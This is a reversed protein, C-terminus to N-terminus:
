IKIFLKRLLSGESRFSPDKLGRRKVKNANAVLAQIEKPVKLRREAVLRAGTRRSHADLDFCARDANGICEIWGYSSLIEADWCDKAYHAMENALHQRFRIRKPDVGVKVLFQHVRALYYGLTENNVM